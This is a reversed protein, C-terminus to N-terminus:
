NSTVIISKLLLRVFNAGVTQLIFKQSFKMGSDHCRHTSDGCGVFYAAILNLLNRPRIIDAGAAYM